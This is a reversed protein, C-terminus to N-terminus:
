AREEPPHYHYTFRVWSTMGLVLYQSLELPYQPTKLCQWGLEHNKLLLM